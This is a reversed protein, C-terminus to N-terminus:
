QNTILNLTYELVTDKNKMYDNITQSVFHHPPIGTGEMPFGKPSLSPGRTPIRFYTDHSTQFTRPRNGTDGVTPEGVLTVDGSEWLDIVFSEAASCTFHSTLLYIKGQYTDPQPTMTYDPSVCHPQPSKILYETIRMANGSNGGGNQRVDVILYPLTKVEQYATKFQELVNDMMSNINIYGISDSFIKTSVFLTDSKTSPSKKSLPLQLKLTDHGRVVEYNVLTDTYARFAKRATMLKQAAETSQGTYKMNEQIWEKVPKGNISIIEDKDKFGYQSLYEEPKEVFIKEEIYLPARGAQYTNLRISAHSCKLASFYELLIKGYDMKNTNSSEIRSSLTQYLSDMNINKHEHLSYNELVMAHIQKFDDSFEENKLPLEDIYYFVGQPDNNHTYFYKAYVYLGAYALLLFAIIGGFFKCVKEM